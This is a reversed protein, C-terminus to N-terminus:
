ESDSFSYEIQVQSGDAATYNLRIGYFDNDSYAGVLKMNTGDFDSIGMFESPNTVDAEISNEFINVKNLCTYSFKFTPMKLENFAINVSEGKIQTIKDDKVEVTGVVTKKYSSENDGDISISNLSEISYDIVTKDNETKVDFINILNEGNLTTKVVIYVNDRETAIMDNFKRLKGSDLSIECACLCVSLIAIIMTIILIKKM